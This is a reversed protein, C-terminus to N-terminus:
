NSVCTSLNTNFKWTKLRLILTNIIFFFNLFYFCKLITYIAWFRQFIKKLGSIIMGHSLKLHKLKNNWSNYFFYFICKTFFTANTLKKLTVKLTKIIPILSMEFYWKFLIRSWIFIFIYFWLMKTSIDHNTIIFPSFFM